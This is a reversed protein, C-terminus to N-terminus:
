PKMLNKLQWPWIGPVQNVLRQKNDYLKKSPKSTAAMVLGGLTLMSIVSSTTLLM